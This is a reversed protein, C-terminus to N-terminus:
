VGASDEPSPDVIEWAVKAVKIPGGDPGSFEHQQKDSWEDGGMNKLGFVIITATGPGGGSVAVKMAAKEWLLLRKSKARSVADSFEKHESMWENLTSKAVGIIGAFATLSFGKAMEEEVMDCFRPEYKTPRGGPHKGGREKSM